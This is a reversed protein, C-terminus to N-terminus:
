LADPHDCTVSLQLCQLTAHLRMTLKKMTQLLQQEQLLDAETQLHEPGSCQLALPRLLTKAFM